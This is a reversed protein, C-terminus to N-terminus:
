RTKMAESLAEMTVVPGEDEVAMAQDDDTFFVKKEGDWAIIAPGDASFNPSRIGYIAGIMKKGDAASLGGIDRLGGCSLAETEGIGITVLAQGAAGERQLFLGCRFFVGQTDPLEYKVPTVAVEGIGDFRVTSQAAVTLSGARAGFRAELDDTTVSPQEAPKPTSAANSEALAAPTTTLWPQYAFVGIVGSLLCAAILGTKVSRNM